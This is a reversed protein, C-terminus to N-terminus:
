FSFVLFCSVLFLWIVRVKYGLGELIGKIKVRNDGQVVIEGDKASGGVGCKTKLLKGLDKLDDESGVFGTILSVKKGKRRKTDLQVRLKQKEPPLTEMEEQNDFSYDYDPDTSYVVGKRNKNKGM